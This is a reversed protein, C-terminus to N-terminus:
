HSGLLWFPGHPSNPTLEDARTHIMRWSHANHLSSHLKLAFFIELIWLSVSIEKESIIYIRLWDQLDVNMDLHQPIKRHKECLCLWVHFGFLFFLHSNRVQLLQHTGYSNNLPVVSLHPLGLPLVVLFLFFSSCLSKNANNLPHLWDTFM